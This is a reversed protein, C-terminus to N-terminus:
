LFGSLTRIFIEWITGVEEAIPVVALCVTPICSLCLYEQPLGTAMGQIPGQICLILEVTSIISTVGQPRRSAFCLSLWRCPPWAVKICGMLTPKNPDPNSVPSLSVGSMPLKPHEALRQLTERCCLPEIM